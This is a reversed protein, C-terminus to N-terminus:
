NISLQTFKAITNIDIKDALVARAVEINEAKNIVVRQELQFAMQETKKKDL